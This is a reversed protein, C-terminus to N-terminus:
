PEPNAPIDLADLEVQVQHKFRGSSMRNAVKRKCAWLPPSSMVEECGLSDTVKGEVSNFDLKLFGEDLPRSQPTEM